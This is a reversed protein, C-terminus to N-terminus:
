CVDDYKLSFCSTVNFLGLQIVKSGDLLGYLGSSRSIRSIEHSVVNYACSM